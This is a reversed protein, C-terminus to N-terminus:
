IITEMVEGDAHYYTSYEVTKREWYDHYKDRAETADVAMVIRIDDVDYTDGEYVTVSVTGRVIYPIM